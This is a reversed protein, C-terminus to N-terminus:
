GSARARRGPQCRPCWMLGRGTSRDAVIITGCSPCPSGDRGYIRLDDQNRGVEGSVNRFDKLTTGGREISARLVKVLNSAIADWDHPRLRHAPTRPDIGSLFLSEIAYINGIGAVAHQDLLADRIARVSQGLRAALLEGRFGRALPEPGLQAVPPTNLLNEYRTLRVGGFRRPDVLRLERGDAFALVLHTHAVMPTGARVIGCRGSMGLHLLLGLAQQKAGADRTTARMQRPRLAAQQEFKWLIYKGRRVLTGPVHGILHQLPLADHKWAAHERLAFASRWCSIVPSALRGRVLGRRVSEVEPLEPM